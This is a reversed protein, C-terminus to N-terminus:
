RLSTTASSTFQLGTLLVVSSWLGVVLSRHHGFLILMKIRSTAQDSGSGDTDETTLKNVM